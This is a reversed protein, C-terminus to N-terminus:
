AAIVRLGSLDDSEPHVVVGLGINGLAVVGLSEEKFTVKGSCFGGTGFHVAQRTYCRLGVSVEELGDVFNNVIARLWGLYHIEASVINRM